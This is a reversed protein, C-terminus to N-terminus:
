SCYLSFFHSTFNNFFYLSIVIMMMTTTGHTGNWRFFDQLGEAEMVRLGDLFVRVARDFTVVAAAVLANGWVCYAVKSSGLFVLALYWQERTRLAWWLTLGALGFSATTYSLGTTTKAANVNAHPHHVQRALAADLAARDDDDDVDNEHNHDDDDDDDDDNLADDDDDRREGELLMREMAEQRARRRRQAAAVQDDRNEDDADAM